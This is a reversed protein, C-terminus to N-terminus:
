SHHSVAKAKYPEDLSAVEEVTLSKGRLEAAENIRAVSNCGVIPVTGKSRHWALGVQAMTWGKAEALKEVRKITEEDEATLPHSPPGPATARISDNVGLPRALKGGFLPSYPTIGVGTENCFRNMEREEERYLPNYMNQMAIMKTWVNKEAIFQLKAFQTAWMSSAGIYRVKGQQVLDHLAKM